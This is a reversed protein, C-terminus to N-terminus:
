DGEPLGAARLADLFRDRDEARQFPPKQIGRVTADRWRALIRAIVAGADEHRGLRELIAARTLAFLPIELAGQEAREIADLAGADDGAIFRGIALLWYRYFNTPDDPDLDIAREILPMGEEPKGAHILADGRLQIALLYQPDIALAQRADALAAPCDRRLHLAILGRTMYAYDSGRDLEVARAAMALAREAREESQKGVGLWGGFMLCFAQMSLAMADDPDDALVADLLREAAAFDAARFRYFHQAAKARREANSLASEPRDGYRRGDYAAMASRIASAIGETLADELAFVDGWEHDYRSSWVPAGSGTEVLEANVRLRGGSRRLSGTLVYHAGTSERLATLDRTQAAAGATVGRAVVDIGRRRSLASTLDDALGDALGAVEADGAPGAFPVVVVVPNRGRPGTVASLDGATADDGVAAEPPWRWVRIPRSINKVRQEGAEAFDTAVKGTIQEHVAGAIAIGGPPALAELRAAVNVGDGYIDDGEAVIDGLNIGIRFTIERGRAALAEQVALACRVADVASGFEVLFGDGTMKVVRGGHDAFAPDFVEGRAARLLALTAAEDAEMMRSFGVVDAAFIAALRRRETPPMPAGLDRQKGWPLSVCLEPRPMVANASRFTPRM